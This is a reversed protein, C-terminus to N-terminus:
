IYHEAVRREENRPKWRAAERDNLLVGEAGVSAPEPDKEPETAERGNLTQAKAWERAPNSALLGSESRRGDLPRRAGSSLREDRKQARREERMSLANSRHYLLPSSLM